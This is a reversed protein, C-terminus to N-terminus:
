GDGPAEGGDGSGGRAELSCALRFGVDPGRYGPAHRLRRAARWSEVEPILSSGGRVAAPRDGTAGISALTWESVNATLDLIGLGSRDAAVTGVDRIAPDATLTLLNAAGSPFERLLPPPDDPDPEDDELADSARAVHEWEDEDPLRYVFGGGERATRWRAFARAEWFSIGTIPRRDHGAPPAGDRFGAPGPRGTALEIFTGARNAAAGEVDWLSESRALDYGGDAVFAAFAASDVETRSIAFAALARERLPNDDGARESGLTPRAARIAVFGDPPEGPGRMTARLAVTEQRAPRFREADDLAELARERRGGAAEARARDLSARWGADCVEEHLSEIRRADTETAVWRAAATLEAIAGAHDPPDRGLAADARALCGERRASRLDGRAHRDEPVLALGAEIDRIADDWRGDRLATRGRALLDQARDWSVEALELDARAARVSRTRAADGEALRDLPGLVFAAFRHRREVLAIQTLILGADVRLARLGGHDPVAALGADVEVIVRLLLETARERARPGATGPGPESPRDLLMPAGGALAAGISPARNRLAEIAARTLRAGEEVRATARRRAREADIAGHVAVFTERADASRPDFSLAEEVHHLAATLDGADLAARGDAVHRVAKAQNEARVREQAKKQGIEALRRALMQRGENAREDGARVDIIKEYELQAALLALEAGGLDDDEIAINARWIQASAREHSARVFSERNAARVVMLITILGIATAWMATGVAHRRCFRITRVIPGPPRALVPEGDIFRLLDDRLEASSQYRRRQDRDMAKLIIAELEPPIAPDISRPRRPEQSMIKALIEHISEGDYPLRRTVLEYLFVGLSYVDSRVDVEHARGRAQEPSMYHPTGVLSGTRTNLVAPGSEDPATTAEAADAEARRDEPPAPPPGDVSAASAPRARVDHVPDKAAPPNWPGTSTELVKALGFDLVKPRGELDIVVNSPKLDRHIIGHLHAYGVGDAVWALLRASERWTLRRSRYYESLPLGEVWEMTFYTFGGCSGIDLVSVIRPHKLRAAAEAERVFRRVQLDTAFAGQLMVKLAVPRNLDLQLAKYVVGMGGRGAEAHIEYRGEAFSFVHGDELRRRAEDLGIRTIDDGSATRDSPPRSVAVSRPGMPVPVGIGPPPDWRVPQRTAISSRPADPWRQASPPGEGRGDHSIPPAGDLTISDVSGPTAPGTPPRFPPADSPDRGPEDSSAPDSSAGVPPAGDLDTASGSPPGSATEEAVGTADAPPTPGAEDDPEAGSPPETAAANM